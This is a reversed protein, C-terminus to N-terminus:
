SAFLPQGIKVFVPGLKSLAERLRAGRTRKSTDPMTEEEHWLTWVPWLEGCIRSSAANLSKKSWLKLVCIVVFALAYLAEYPMLPM